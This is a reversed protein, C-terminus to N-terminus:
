ADSRPCFSAAFDSLSMASRVTSLKQHAAWGRDLSDGVPALLAAQLEQPSLASLDVADGGTDPQDTEALGSPSGYWVENIERSPM